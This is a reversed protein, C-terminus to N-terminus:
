QELINRPQEEQAKEKPPVPDYGGPHWPACCCIRRLALLIGRFLGFREIATYAYESCTPVFRCNTGLYPSICRKYIKILILVTKQPIRVIWRIGPM